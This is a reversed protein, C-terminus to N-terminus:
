GAALRRLSVFLPFHDSPYRGAYRDTVVTAGAMELDGRYFIWDIPPGQAVGKFGHFTGESSSPLASKFGPAHNTLAAICSADPGANLDGMLVASHGLAMHRLRQLILAASKRQIEPEFDFHTNAVTLDLGANQFNGMTCQRPWQSQSFKSPRDPTPSLYFHDSNLCRWRRHHFLVNNQWYGPAPSRQGIMGYEPLLGQLFAIQFDNAEQFGYFDCPHTKLLDPYCRKRNEWNDPGDDALGFRLNLCFFRITEYATDTSGM